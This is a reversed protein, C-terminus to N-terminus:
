ECICLDQPSTAAGTRQINHPLIRQKSSFHERGEPTTNRNKLNVALTTMANSGPRASTVLSDPLVIGADQASNCQLSIQLVTCVNM